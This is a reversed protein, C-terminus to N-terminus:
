TACYSAAAAGFAKWREWFRENSPRDSQRVEQLAHPDQFYKAGRKQDTRSLTTDAVNQICSCLQRSAPRDSKICAKRIANAEVPGSGIPGLLATTLLVILLARM